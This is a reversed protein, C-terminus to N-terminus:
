IRDLMDIWRVLEALEDDSLERPAEGLDKVTVPIKAERLRDVARTAAAARRSQKAGAVYVALRYLPENEPPRVSLSADLVALGRVLERTSFAVMAALTGGGEKGYVVVRWPDITYVSHIEDLLKQVLTAEDLRWRTPDASKPALLILDHRDCHSKWRKLLEDGDFGGPAHLYVVVGHPVATQYSEPVYAWADNKMEPIKLAVTGVEPLVENGPEVDGRARPLQAPPLDESPAGLKVEHAQLQGGHRVELRLQDGPEFAAIQRLLADRDEIAEGDLSVLVDGPEIGAGAAPSGPYVYRVMVGAQEGSTRMPLIGLTGHQFPELKAVLEVDHEIRQQDRLVTIRVESGAYRRALEEKVGAALHVERGAIAVIRDGPLLGAKAAPSNPRCAAIVPESIAPNVGRLHIGIVGSYLDEGQKLRPLVSQIHEADVAFGIGSDYWEAGAMESASSPSLPVLVGLVRGRIDILPGGYNNPSVAADTQIAKGWIRGLASLIGVSVVPRNGEFTRGVAISWQGVRMESLPAIEAVPLPGDAEIKLLVLMRNHDTAALRAPKLTGDCLRVLISTPQNVFNFASSVIYGERDVILGTTPGTGLLVRGMRQLGGVTEIRVVSPEVRAVAARFAEQELLEVDDDRPADVGIETAEGETVLANGLAPVGCLLMAAALVGAMSGIMTPLRRLHAIM